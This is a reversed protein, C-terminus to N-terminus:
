KLAEDIMATWTARGIELDPVTEGHDHRCATYFGEMEMAETPKRIEAIAARADAEHNRWNAEVMHAVREEQTCSGQHLKRMFHAQALKRAVREVM